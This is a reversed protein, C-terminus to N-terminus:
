VGARWPAPIASWPAISSRTWMSRRSICSGCLGHHGPEPPRWLGPRTPPVDLRTRGIMQRDPGGV